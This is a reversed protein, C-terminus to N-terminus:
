LQAAARKTKELSALRYVNDDDAGVCQEAIAAAPLLYQM